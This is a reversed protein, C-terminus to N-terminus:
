NNDVDQRGFVCISSHFKLRLSTELESFLKVQLRLLVKNNQDTVLNDLETIFVSDSSLVRDNSIDSDLSQMIIFVIIM